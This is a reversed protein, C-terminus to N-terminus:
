CQLHQRLMLPAQLASAAVLKLVDWPYIGMSGSLPIIMIITSVLHLHSHSTSVYCCPEGPLIAVPKEGRGNLESYLRQQAVHSISGRRIGEAWAGLVRSVQPAHLLQPRPICNALQRDLLSGPQACMVTKPLQALHLCLQM